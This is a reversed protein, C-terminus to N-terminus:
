HDMSGLVERLVRTVEEDEVQPFAEYAAGVGPLRGTVEPCVFADVKDALRDRASPSAVPVAVVVAAPDSKRLADVAAEMSAGTAIGDDVLIAAIRGRVDVPTRDGRYVRERRWLEERERQVVVETEGRSLGLSDMIDQNVVEVGGSAIAGAALEEHGPVGVKRVLFIDLDADLEAAVEVAVPLGGGLMALVVADKDRYQDALAAALRRGADGRDTYTPM